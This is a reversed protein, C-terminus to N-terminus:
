TSLSVTTDPLAPALLILSLEPCARPSSSAATLLFRFGSPLVPSRQTPFGVHEGNPFKSSSSSTDGLPCHLYFIVALSFM